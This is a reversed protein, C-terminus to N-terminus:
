NKEDINEDIPISKNKPPKFVKYFSKFKKDTLFEYAEKSEETSHDRWGNWTVKVM